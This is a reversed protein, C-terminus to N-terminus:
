DYCTVVYWIRCPFINFYSCKAFTQSDLMIGDTSDFMISDLIISDTSDDNCCSDHPISWLLCYSFVCVHICVYVWWSRQVFCCLKDSHSCICIFVTYILDRLLQLGATGRNGQVSETHKTLVTCLNMHVCKWIQMAIQTTLIILMEM